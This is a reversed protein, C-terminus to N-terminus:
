QPMEGSVAVHAGIEIALMAVAALTFGPSRRMGRLAYRLDQVLRDIIM